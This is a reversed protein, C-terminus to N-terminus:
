LLSYKNSMYKIVKFHIMHTGIGCMERESFCLSINKQLHYSKNEEFRGTNNKTVKGKGVSLANWLLTLGNCQISVNLLM